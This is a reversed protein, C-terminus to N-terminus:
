DEVLNRAAADIEVPIDDNDLICDNIFDAMAVSKNLNHVIIKAFRESRCLVISHGDGLDYLVEKPNKPNLSYIM